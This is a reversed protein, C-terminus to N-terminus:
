KGGGKDQRQRPTRALANRLGRKPAGEDTSKVQSNSSKKDLKKNEDSQKKSEPADFIPISQGQAIRIYAKKYDSRKGLLPRSRKKYSRKTKGKVIVLRVDLADVSFQTKVAHQVASKNASLPVSFVYTNQSVASQYAKESLRPQLSLINSM